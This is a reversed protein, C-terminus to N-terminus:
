ALWIHPRNWKNVLSSQQIAQVWWARGIVKRTYSTIYTSVQGPPQGKHIYILCGAPHVRAERVRHGYIGTGNTGPRFVHAVDRAQSGVAHSWVLWLSTNASSVAALAHVGAIPWYVCGHKNSWHRHQGRWSHLYKWAARSSPRVRGTNQNDIFKLCLNNESGQRGCCEQQNHTCM